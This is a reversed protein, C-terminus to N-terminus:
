PNAHTFDGGIINHTRDHASKRRCKLGADTHDFPVPRKERYRFRGWHNRQILSRGWQNRRGSQTGNYAAIAADIELKLAKIWGAREFITAHGDRHTFRNLASGTQDDARGSAVSRGRRGSIRCPGANLTGDKKGGTLDRHALERLCKDVAGYDNREFAIKIAAEGQYAFKRRLRPYGHDVRNIVVPKFSLFGRRKFDHVGQAFCRVEMDERDAIGTVGGGIPFSVGFIKMSPM